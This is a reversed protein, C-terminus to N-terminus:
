KADIVAATAMISHSGMMVNKELMWSVMEVSLSTRRALQLAAKSKTLADPLPYVSKAVFMDMNYRANRQAAMVRSLIVMMVSKDELHNM